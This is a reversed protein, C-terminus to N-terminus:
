YKTTTSSTSSTSSSISPRFALKYYHNFKCQPIHLKCLSLLFSLDRAECSCARGMAGGPKMETSGFCSGRPKSRANRTAAALVQKAVRGNARLCLRGKTPGHNQNLNKFFLSDMRWFVVSSMSQDELGVLGHGAPWGVEEEEEM